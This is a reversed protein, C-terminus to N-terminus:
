LTQRLDGSVSAATRVTGNREGIKLAQEVTNLTYGHAVAIEEASYGAQHLCTVQEVMQPYSITGRLLYAPPDWCGQVPSGDTRLLVDKVPRGLLDVAFSAVEHVSGSRSRQRKIGLAKRWKRVMYITVGAQKVLFSDPAGARAEREYQNLRKYGETSPTRPDAGKNKGVM